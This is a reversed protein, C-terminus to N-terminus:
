PQHCRHVPPWPDPAGTVDTLLGATMRSTPPGPPAPHLPPPQLPGLVAGVLGGAGALVIVQVSQRSGFSGPASTPATAAPPSPMGHVATPWSPPVPLESGTRGAAQVEGSPQAHRRAVTAGTVGSPCRVPKEKTARRPRSTAARPRDYLWICPLMRGVRHRDSAPAGSRSTLSNRSSKPPPRPMVM